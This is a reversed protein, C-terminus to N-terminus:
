YLLFPRVTDAFQASDSRARSILDEPSEDGNAFRDDGVILAFHKTPPTVDAPCQQRIEHFLWIAAEFPRAANSDTIHIQVGHCLKEAHKSFMPTFHTPRWLLGPLRHSNLAAVLKPADIFPAGILEFPHTTGRGESLNTGEFLCTGVYALATEPTPINPSPAVWPLGFDSFRASRPHPSCPVVTLDCHIDFTDNIYRAYEGVTLGYRAPMPYEGVFSAFHETDLIIGERLENGLPNIRDLVIVPINHQKADQMAFALTYIYTYFRCGVDQIDYVLADIRDFAEDCIHHTKGHLSYVPINLVSDLTDGVSIGAQADGRIGHEPGFLTTLNFQEALIDATARLDRTVGSPNTILGLRRNRFLSAYQPLNDIGNLITTM